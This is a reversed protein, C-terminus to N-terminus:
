PFLAMLPMPAAMLCHASLSTSHPLEEQTIKVDSSRKMNAPWLVVILTKQMSRFLTLCLYEAIHDTREISPAPRRRYINFGKPENISHNREEYCFPHFLISAIM